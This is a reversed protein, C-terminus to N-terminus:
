WRGCTSSGWTFRFNFHISLALRFSLRLLHPKIVGNGIYTSNAVLKISRKLRFGSDRFDRRTQEHQRPVLARVFSFCATLTDRAADGDGDDGIGM